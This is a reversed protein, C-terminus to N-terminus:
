AKSEDAATSKLFPLRTAGFHECVRAVVEDATLLRDPEVIAEKAPGWRTEINNLWPSKVPLPCLVIQVGGGRKVRRNHEAVWDSVPRGAHWSAEDWIVILRTKGEAGFQECAWALFQATVDGVPRGEVFRVIVRNTDQRLLGYCCLAVPDPDTDPRPLVHLKVPDGASWARLRPRAIRSWWVEDVFGVVWEPHSAALRIYRDRRAKKEAYHPDPSTIWLQARRWKVGARKLTRRVTEDCVAGNVIGIEACTDALLQLTWTSRNKGFSRPSQRVLEQLRRADLVPRRSPRDQSKRALAAQLGREACRRRLREVTAVSVVFAEAIRADDWGPGSPRADAKLLIYARTQTFASTKSSAVLGTLYEREEPKLTVVHQKRPIAAGRTPAKIAWGQAPARHHRTDPKRRGVAVEQEAEIPAVRVRLDTAACVDEQQQAVAV